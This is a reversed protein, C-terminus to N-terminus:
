IKELKPGKETDLVAYGKETIRSRIIDAEAWMKNKRFRERSQVLKTVEKPITLKSEKMNKIGLGLVSDFHELLKLKKKSNFDFDDLTKIFVQVAKPLNLDDYIAKHFQSEYQKTADSGKHLQKQLELIKRKIREYSVKASDLKDFTFNLPKKYHTLLSLYRFHMPQFGSSELELLTITNGKSKSLKEEKFLLFGAHLWYNVFKKGTAAESQAIENNHHVQSLDQGGTHIDFHEGLNKMSMASCELHWGPFGVGWPSSWEQLRKEKGSFKWLAFDTSNKKEGLAIRKGEQREIKGFGALKGYNKFKKTDFYIGDSTEYTYKKKKLKSILSIQEKINDTAKVRKGLQMNLKTLDQEFLDIYKKAIEKATLGQSKAAKEVKDEGTDKNSTLHGVDTYNIIHKVKFGHHKLTRILFDALLATRMNGIHQESYVTPGCSYIGVNGPKIPKFNEKKGTLTNYLKIM